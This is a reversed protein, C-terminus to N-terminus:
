AQIVFDSASLTPYGTLTAFQGGTGFGSASGNQNYFLNGNASNYVIDGSSTAAATDSGVVKFENSISFGNGAASSIAKFTTKDLVIKDTGHIFDSIVDIGVAATTFTANTDYLFRDNGGGGTLSDNGAGGVLTDNDYEGNLTDNGDGGDLHDNGYWGLLYDNGAEGYISDNGNWGDITDDDYEGNLTDNGDGGDLYDNGYWGLLYDDGAEGYISDNGNWGDVYDNGAGAYVIDNGDGAYLSDNGDLGNLVNDAGNADIVNDLNNGTGNIVNTGLLTLNEFNAGLTWSSYSQVTDTGADAVENLTPAAPDFGNEFVEITYTDNGVGGELIDGGHWGTAILTDDGAEGYLKDLQGYHDLGGNLTDNGGGGYVVDNGALADISDNNPTGFIIDDGNTPYSAM